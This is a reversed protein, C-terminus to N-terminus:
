ILHELCYKIAAEVAEEYTHFRSKAKKQELGVTTCINNNIQVYESIVYSYEFHAKEDSECGYCQIEIFLNQEERLWKMAMQITPLAILRAKEDEIDSNTTPWSVPMVCKSIANVVFSCGEDFGKEKLLKATEFSVYDEQINM